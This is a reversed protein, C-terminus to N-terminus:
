QQNFIVRQGEYMKTTKLDFDFSKYLPAIIRITAGRRIADLMYKFGINGATKGDPTVNLIYKGKSILQGDKYLGILVIIQSDKNYDFIGKRTAIILMESSETFSIIKNDEEYFYQWESPIGTLEDGPVYQRRWQANSGLCILSFVFLFLIKKM